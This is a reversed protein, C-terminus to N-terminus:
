LAVSEMKNAIAHEPKKQHWHGVFIRQFVKMQRLAQKQHCPTFLQNCKNNLITTTSTDHLGESEQMM